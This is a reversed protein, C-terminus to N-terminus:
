LEIEQLDTHHVCQWDLFGLNTPGLVLYDGENDMGIDESYVIKGVEMQHKITVGNKAGKLTKGGQGIVKFERYM